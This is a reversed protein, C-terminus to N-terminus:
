IPTASKKKWHPNFHFRHACSVADNINFRYFLIEWNLGLRWSEKLSTRARTQERSCTQMHHPDTPWSFGSLCTIHTLLGNSPYLIGEEATCLKFAGLLVKVPGLALAQWALLCLSPSGEGHHVPGQSEGVCQWQPQVSLPRHDRCCLGSTSWHAHPHTFTHMHEAHMYMNKESLSYSQALM